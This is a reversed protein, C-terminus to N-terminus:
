EPDAEEKKTLNELLKGAESHKSSANNLEGLIVDIDKEIKEKDEVLKQYQQELINNQQQLLALKKENQSM